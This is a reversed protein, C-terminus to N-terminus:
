LNILLVVINFLAYTGSIALLLIVFYDMLKKWNLRLRIEGSEVAKDFLKEAKEKSIDLKKQLEELIQKKSMKVLSRPM